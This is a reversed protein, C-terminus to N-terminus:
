KHCERIHENMCGYRIDDYCAPCVNCCRIRIQGYTRDSHPGPCVHDCDDQSNQGINVNNTVLKLPQVTDLSM